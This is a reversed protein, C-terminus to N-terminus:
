MTTKMPVKATITYKQTTIWEPGVVQEPRLEYAQQILMKLTVGVYNIREPSKTGPGGSIADANGGGGSSFAAGETM